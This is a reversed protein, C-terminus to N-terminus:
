FPLTEDWGAAEEKKEYFVNGWWTFDQWLIAKLHNEVMAEFKVSIKGDEKIFITAIRSYTKKTEWWQQYSWTPVSVHYKGVWLQVQM